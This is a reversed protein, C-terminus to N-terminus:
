ARHSLRRSPPTLGGPAPRLIPPRRAPGNGIPAIHPSRPPCVTTKSGIDVFLADLETPTTTDWTGFATVFEGDTVGTASTKGQYYTTSPSIVVDGTTGRFRSLTISTSTVNTVKGSLRDLLVTVEVATPTADSPDLRM